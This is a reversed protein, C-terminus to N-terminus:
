EPHYPFLESVNKIPICKHKDANETGALPPQEHTAMAYLKKKFYALDLSVM